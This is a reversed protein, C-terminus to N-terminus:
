PCMKSYQLCLGWAFSLQISCFLQVAGTAFGLLWILLGGAAVASCTGSECSCLSLVPRCMKPCSAFNLSSCSQWLRFVFDKNQVSASDEEEEGWGGWFSITDTNCYYLNNAWHSGLLTWVWLNLCTWSAAPLDLCSWGAPRSSLWGCLLKASLTSKLWENLWWIWFLGQFSSVLFPVDAKQLVVSQFLGHLGIKWLKKQAEIHM